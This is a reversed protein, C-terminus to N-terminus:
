EIVFCYLKANSICKESEVYEFIVNRTRMRINCKENKVRFTCKKNRMQFNCEKDRTRFNREENRM